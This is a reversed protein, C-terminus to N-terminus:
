TYMLLPTTITVVYSVALYIAIAASILITLDIKM